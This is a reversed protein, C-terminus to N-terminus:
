KSYQLAVSTLLPPLHPFNFLFPLVPFSKKVNLIILMVKISPFYPSHGCFMLILPSIIQLFCKIFAVTTYLRQSNEYFVMYWIFCLSVKFSISIYHLSGLHDYNLIQIHFFQVYALVIGCLRQICLYRQSLLHTGLEVSITM